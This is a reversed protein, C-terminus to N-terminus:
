GTIEDRIQGVTNIIQDLAGDALLAAAQNNQLNESINLSAFESSLNEFSELLKAIEEDSKLTKLLGILDNLPKEQKLITIILPKLILARADDPLIDKPYNRVLATSIYLGEVFSGTLVMAAVKARDSEKLYRETESLAENVLVSLSDRSSLNSEFRKILNVDIAAGVGIKEALQKAVEMYSLADQVKGYSIMYGIDTSLLGLNLSASSTSNYSSFKSKSNIISGDFDAGTAELLFPIESPPPIEYVVNELRESLTSKAKEFDESGERGTKKDAGCSLMLVSTVIVLSLSLPLIRNQIM